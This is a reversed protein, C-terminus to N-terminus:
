VRMIHLFYNVGEPEWLIQVMDPSAGAQTALNILTQRSRHHLRWNGFLEMYDRSPNFDSFNGIVVEAGPKAVALLAKLLGVFLRDSLYDFLGASWVLDYGRSPVFRLVNRHHFQLKNSWPACLHRAYEIAHADMDVCDVLMDADPHTQFFEQLDRAPGSAVNLVELPAVGHHAALQVQMLNQFYAKRNRVASPAAQAHFYLDWHRLRPDPHIKQTYIHDIIEFDGSYGYKRALAESQMTGAFSRASVEQIYAHIHDESVVGARVLDGVQRIARSVTGYESPMPGGKVILDELLEVFWDLPRSDHRSQVPTGALITQALPPM